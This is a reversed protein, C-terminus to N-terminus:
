ISYTQVRIPRIEPNKQFYADGPYYLYVAENSFFHVRSQIRNVAKFSIHAPFNVLFQGILNGPVKESALILHIGAVKAKACLKSCFDTLLDSLLYGKFGSYDAMVFVLYPLKDIAQQNYAKINRVGANSLLAYRRELEELLWEMKEVLTGLDHIVPCELYEAGDYSNFDYELNDVLIFKAKGTNSISDIALKLFTAKGYGNEGGVLLHPLELLDLIIDRKGDNGLPLPLELGSQSLKDKITDAKIVNLESNKETIILVDEYKSVQPLFGAKEGINSELRDLRNRSIRLSSIIKLQHRSYSSFERVGVYDAKIRLAELEEIIIDKFDMDTKEWDMIFDADAFYYTTGIVETLIM